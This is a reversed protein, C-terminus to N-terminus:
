TADKGQKDESDVKSISPISRLDLFVQRLSVLM